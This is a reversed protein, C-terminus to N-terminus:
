RRDELAQVFNVFGYNCFSSFEEGDLKVLRVSKEWLRKALKNSYAWSVARTQQCNKFFEGSVEGARKDLAVHLATQAGEWPSKFMSGFIFTLIQGLLKGASDFIRTGVAGPDVCNIVVNDGKLRKTLERAFLVLCLKSKAYIQWMYYHDTRNLHKFDMIGFRHLISATNVIRSPENPRGSKRLLPLLLLTLLFHGFYNVQMIFSMGDATIYDQPVGVGANNILIDLRNETRLIDAAFNRVSDLSSLDLLKFIVKENRTKEVILARAYNGEDEYPCAIIVKAGRHAFDMAIALGMGTTGGTVLTTRGILSKTSKCFGNTSKQYLRILIMVVM